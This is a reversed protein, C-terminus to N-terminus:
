GELLARFDLFVQRFATESATDGLSSLKAETAHLLSAIGAKLTEGAEDVAPKFMFGSITGSADTYIHRDIARLSVHAGDSSTDRYVTLYLDTMGATVTATAWNIRRPSAEKYQASIDAVVTRLLARVEASINPDNEPLGLLENALSQRHKDHDEYLQAIFTKDRRAAGLAIATEACARVLTRAEASMGREALLVVGQFMEVARAYLTAVYAEARVNPVKSLLVSMALRNLKGALAFWAAHRERTQAVWPSDSSLFGDIQFPLYM